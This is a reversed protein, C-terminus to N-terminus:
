DDARGRSIGYTIGAGVLILVLSTLAQPVTPTFRRVPWDEPDILAMRDETVVEGKVISGIEPLHGEQFPWLGVVVGALLGLLVGFTAARHSRLLYKLVNSMAAIGLVLGVGVPIVVYVVPGVMAAIDGARLALVTEEIAGLIPLYQGLILLLYGGSIGPLIMSAAGAAGAILKAVVGDGLLGGGIVGSQQALGIAAMVLFGAAVGVWLATGRARALRWLAPIGGLTLGIFVSYALWRQDVIVNKVPGALLAIATAAAGGIVLLLMIAPRSLRIRSVSAVADIFDTYVGAALLMTGGSIGPVLNALGM